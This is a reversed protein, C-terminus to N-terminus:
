IHKTKNSRNDIDNLGRMVFFRNYESVPPEKVVACSSDIWWVTITIEQTKLYVHVVPLICNALNSLVGGSICNVQVTSLVCYLICNFVVTSLVRFRM